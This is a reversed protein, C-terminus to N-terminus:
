CFSIDEQPALLYQGRTGCTSMAETSGSSMDGPEVLLCTKHFFSMDEPEVLLCVDDLPVLLFIDENPLAFCRGPVILSWYPDSPIALSWQPDSPVVVLPCSALGSPVM